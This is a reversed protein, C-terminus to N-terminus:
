CKPKYLDFHILVRSNQPWFQEFNAIRETKLSIFLQGLWWDRAVSNILNLRLFDFKQCSFWFKPWIQVKKSRFSSFNSLFLSKKKISLYFHHLSQRRTVHDLQTVCDMEWAEWVDPCCCCCFFLTAASFSSYM